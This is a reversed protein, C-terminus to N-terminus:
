NIKMIKILPRLTIIIIWLLVLLLALRMPLNLKGVGGIKQNQSTLVLVINRVTRKRQPANVMLVENLKSTEIPVLKSWNSHISEKDSDTESDKEGTKCQESVMNVITQTSTTKSSDSFSNRKRFM